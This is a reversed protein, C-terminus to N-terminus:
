SYYHSILVLLISILEEFNNTKSSNHRHPVIRSRPHNSVSLGNSFKSKM